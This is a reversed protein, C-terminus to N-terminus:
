VKEFAKDVIPSIVDQVDREPRYDNHANEAGPQGQAGRLTGIHDQMVSDNMLALLRSAV